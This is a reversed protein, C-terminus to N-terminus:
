SLLYSVLFAGVRQFRAGKHFLTPLMLMLNIGGNLYTGHLMFKTSDWVPLEMVRRMQESWNLLISFHQSSRNFGCAYASM